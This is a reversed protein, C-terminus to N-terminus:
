ESPKPRKLNFILASGPKLVAYRTSGQAGDLRIPKEVTLVLYENEENRIFDYRLFAIEGECSGDIVSFRYSDKGITLDLANADAYTTYKLTGQPISASYEKYSVDYIENEDPTIELTATTSEFPLLHKVAVPEKATASLSSTEVVLLGNVKGVFHGKPLDQFCSNLEPVREIEHYGDKDRRYKRPSIRYAGEASAEASPEEAPAVPPDAALVLSPSSLCLWSILLVLPRACHYPLM